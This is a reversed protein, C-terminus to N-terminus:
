ATRVDLNKLWIIDARSIQQAFGSSSSLSALWQFYLVKAFSPRRRAKLGSYQSKKLMGGPPQRTRTKGPRALHCNSIANDIVARAANALATVFFRCALNMM